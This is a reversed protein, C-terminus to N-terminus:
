SLGMCEVHSTLFDVFVGWGYWLCEM